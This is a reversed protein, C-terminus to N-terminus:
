VPNSVPTSQAEGARSPTERSWSREAADLAQLVCGSVLAGSFARSCGLPLVSAGGCCTRGLLPCLHSSAAAPSKLPQQPARALAQPPELYWSSGVQAGVAPPRGPALAHVAAQSVNWPLESSLPGPKHGVVVASHAM